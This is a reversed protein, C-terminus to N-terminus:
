ILEDKRDCDPRLRHQQFASWSTAERKLIASNWGHTPHLECENCSVNMLIDGDDLSTAPTLTNPMPPTHYVQNGNCM